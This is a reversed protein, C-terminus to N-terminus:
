IARRGFERMRKLWHGRRADSGRLDVSGVISSRIPKMGSFGVVHRKLARLSHAFFFHRYLFAPTSMTVVIRASKGTLHPTWGTPRVDMAFGHRFLQEIFGKLVAPLMGHWLPYILVVHDAWHIVAQADLIAPPVEPARFDAPDRLFPFALSGVTILRVEHGGAVAGEEYASALAHAYREPSPDPYGNIICIRAM